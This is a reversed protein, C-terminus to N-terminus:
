EHSRSHSGLVLMDALRRLGLEAQVDAIEGSRCLDLAKSLPLALVRGFHELVSGDLVPESRTAPQVEIHLFFHKGGLV